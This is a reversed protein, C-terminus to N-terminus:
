PGGSTTYPRRRKLFKQGPQRVEALLQGSLRTYLARRGLAQYIQEQGVDVTM